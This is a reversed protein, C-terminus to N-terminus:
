KKAVVTYGLTDLGVKDLKDLMSFFYYNFAYIFKRINKIMGHMFTFITIHDGASSSFSYEIYYNLIQALMLWFNGKKIIKVIKFENKRMLYEIGFKTFRYYDCPSGHLYWVQPVSLILHGGPKLIEWIQGLIIDPESIHELVETCLVTDTSNNKLPLKEAKTFISATKKYKLNCKLIRFNSDIGIYYNIKDNLLKQYLLDGCGVDLLIGKFYGLCSRINKYNLSDIIYNSDFINYRKRM